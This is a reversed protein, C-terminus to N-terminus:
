EFLDSWIENIFGQLIEPTLFVLYTYTMHKPLRALKEYGPVTHIYDYFRDLMNIDNEIIDSILGSLFWKLDINENYKFNFKNGLYTFAETMTTIKTKFYPNVKYYKTGYITCLRSFEKLTLKYNIFNCLNDKDFQSFKENYVDEIIHHPKFFAKYKSKDPYKCIGNNLSRVIGASILNNIPAIDSLDFLNNLDQSTILNPNSQEEAIEEEIPAISYGFNLKQSPETIDDLLTINYNLLEEKLLDGFDDDKHVKFEWSLENIYSALDKNEEIFSILQDLALDLNFQSDDELEGFVTSISSSVGEIDLMPAIEKIGDIYKDFVDPNQCIMPVKKISTIIDDINEEIITKDCENIQSIYNKFEDLKKNIISNDKVTMLNDEIWKSIVNSM